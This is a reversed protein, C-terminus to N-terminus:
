PTHQRCAQRVLTDLEPRRDGLARGSDLWLCRPDCWCRTKSEALRPPFMSRRWSHSYQRCCCCDAGVMVAALFRWLQPWGLLAVPPTGGATPPVRFTESCAPLPRMRQPFRPVVPPPLPPLAQPPPPRPKPRPRSPPREPHVLTTHFRFGNAHVRRPLHLQLIWRGTCQAFATSPAVPSSEVPRPRVPVRELSLAAAEKEGAPPLM